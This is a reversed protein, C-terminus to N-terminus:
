KNNLLTDLKGDMKAMMTNVNSLKENIEKFEGATKKEYDKQEDKVADIRKHITEVEKNIKEQIENKAAKKAASVGVFRENTAQVEKEHDKELRNIRWKTVAQNAIFSAGGGGAASLILELSDM